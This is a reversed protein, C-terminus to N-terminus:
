QAGAKIPLCRYSAHRRKAYHRQKFYYDTELQKDAVQKSFLEICDEILLRLQFPSSELNIKGAEIKSYDLIDNILVLLSEGSSQITHVLQEQETTLPTSGLLSACGIVGNMPTRIEHSMVALFSSKAKAAQEAEQKAKELAQETKVLETVDRTLGVLGIVENHSNYLPVKKSDAYSKSGDAHTHCEREHIPVGTHMMEQEQAFIKQAAEPTFAGSNLDSMGIAEALSDIGQFALWAKNGGKFISNRDKFYFRDPLQDQLYLFHNAAEIASIKATHSDSIDTIVGGVSNGTSTGSSPTVHLLMWTSPNLATIIEFECHFEQQGKIASQLSKKISHRDTETICNFLLNADRMLEVPTISFYHNIRQNCYEFVIEGEASLRASFIISPLADIFNM